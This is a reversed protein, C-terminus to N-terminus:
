YYSYIPLSLYKALFLFPILIYLSSIILTIINIKIKASDRQVFYLNTDVMEDTKYDKHTVTTFFNKIKKDIMLYYPVMEKEIYGKLKDKEFVAIGGIEIKIKSESESSSTSEKNKSDESLNSNEQKSQIENNEENM